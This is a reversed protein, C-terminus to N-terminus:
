NVIRTVHRWLNLRNIYHGIKLVWGIHGQPMTGPTVYTDWSRVRHLEQTSGSNTGDSVSHLTVLSTGDMTSLMVKYLMICLEDDVEYPTMTDLQLVVHRIQWMSSMSSISYLRSIEVHRLCPCRSVEQDIQSGDPLDFIVQTAFPPRSPCLLWILREHSLNINKILHARLKDWRRDWRWLSLKDAGTKM